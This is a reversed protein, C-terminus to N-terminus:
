AQIGMKQASCFNQYYPLHYQYMEQLHPHQKLNQEHKTRDTKHIGTSHAVDEHWEKWTDWINLYQEDWEAVDSRPPLGLANSYDLLARSPNEELDEAVVIPPIKGIVESVKQCLVWAQETGIEDCTVNKNLNYHSSISKLPDRVLFTSNILSLFEEDKLIHSICHFAM